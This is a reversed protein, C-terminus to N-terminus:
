LSMFVLQEYQFIFEGKKLPLEQFGGPSDPNAEYNHLAVVLKSIVGDKEGRDGLICNDLMILDDHQLLSVKSQSSKSNTSDEQAGPKRSPSFDKLGLIGRGRGRVKSYDFEKIVAAM